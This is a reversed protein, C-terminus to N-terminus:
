DDERFITDMDAVFIPVIITIEALVECELRWLWESFNEEQAMKNHKRYKITNGYNPRDNRITRVEM